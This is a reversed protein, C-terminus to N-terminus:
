RLEAWGENTAAGTVSNVQYTAGDPVIFTASQLNTALVTMATLQAAGVQVTITFAGGSGQASYIVEIARGTSNTYVTDRLRDVGVTFNQWAATVGGVSQRSVFGTNAVLTNNAGIVATPATPSGTLDSNSLITSRYQNVAGVPVQASTVQGSIGSLVLQAQFNALGIKRFFGDAGINEVIVAGVTPNEPASSQNFYTALLYGTNTRQAISLPSAAQDIAVGLPAVDPYINTGDGYVGTPAPFGGPPIVVGSGGATRVTVTFAGTTGNVILWTALTTPLVVALNSTLTGTLVIVGRRAELRTLTVIGGTLGAKTTYGYNFMPVWGAANADPDGTNAATTNFWVTVGDSSELMTGVPYGGIATSVDSSYRYLQGAQQAFVHASLANLIGNFDQGFPPDGGSVEPVMTLPPFGLSYSAAGPVVTTNPITNKHAGDANNAFPQPIFPPTPISM